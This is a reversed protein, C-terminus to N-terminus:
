VRSKWAFVFWEATLLLLAAGVFYHWVERRSEEAGDSAAVTAGPLNLRDATRLRSEGPDCLNVAAVDAPPLAGELRYVGARELVGITVPAGAGAPDTGARPEDPLPVRFDLPGQVRIEKAGPRATATIADGTTIARGIGGGAEGTLLDVANTIFIPFSFDAGWNTHALDFAVIVRRAGAKGGAGRDCVAILPGDPGWAVARCASEEANPVTMRPADAVQVSDLSVYRLLPETRAWSVLHSVEAPADPDREQLVLGPIPLGAGFSVSPTPPTASPRVRDFVVLDYGRPDSGDKPAATMERYQQESMVRVSALLGSELASQLVRALFPDPQAGGPSGEKPIPAVLLVRPRRAPILVVAAADDSALLDKRAMSVVAVGGDRNEFEFTAAADGASDASAAPVILGKVQVVKGDVRLELTANVPAAGANQVRAFVRVVAPAEDDRRASIAVIGLNDPLYPRQEALNGQEAETAAKIPEMVPAPGVRIFRCRVGRVSPPAGEDGAGGDSFIYIAARESSEEEGRENGSLADILRLASALSGPQDTPTISTIAERLSRPDAAFGTVAAAGKAYAIVAGRASAGGPTRGAGREMSDVIKLARQKAEDLRSIPKGGPRAGVPRGDLASMSASRDIVIVFKSAPAGPEDVAPRALAALLLGLAALQLFLLWSARLWRFPTNVQLDQTARAWLLTSSVRVPRRRLKLFYLLLLAPVAIAAALLGTMPALFTM